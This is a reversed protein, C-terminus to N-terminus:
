PARGSGIGLEGPDSRIRISAQFGSRVAAAGDPDTDRCALDSAVLRAGIGPLLPGMPERLRGLKEYEPLIGEMYAWM